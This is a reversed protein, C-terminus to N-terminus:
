RDYLNLVKLTHVADLRPANTVVIMALGAENCRDLFTLLGPLPSMKTSILRYVGEKSEWLATQDDAPMDQFLKEVKQKQRGRLYWSM